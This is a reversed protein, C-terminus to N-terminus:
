GAYRQAGSAGLPAVPVSADANVAAATAAAATAPLMADEADGDTSIGQSLMCAINADSLDMTDVNTNPNWISALGFALADKLASADFLKQSLSM